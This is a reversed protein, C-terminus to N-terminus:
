VWIERIDFLEPGVSVFRGSYYYEVELKNKGLLNEEELVNKLRKAVGKSGDIIQTEKPFIKSLTDKFFPFHTCGLVLESYDDLNYEKLQEKIYEEVNKSEFEKNFVRTAQPTNNIGAANAAIPDVTPSNSDKM